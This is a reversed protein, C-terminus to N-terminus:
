SCTSKLRVVNMVPALRSARAPDSAPARIPAIRIATIGPVVVSCTILLMSAFM